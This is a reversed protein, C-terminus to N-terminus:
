NEQTCFVLSYLPKPFIQPGSHLLLLIPPPPYSACFLLLTHRLSAFFVFTLQYLICSPIVSMPLSSFIRTYIFDCFFDIPPPCFRIQPIPATSAFCHLTPYALPPTFFFELLPPTTSTFFVCSPTQHM